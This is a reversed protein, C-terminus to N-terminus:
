SRIPSYPQHPPTVPELTHLPDSGLSQKALDLHFLAGSTNGNQIENRAQNISENVEVKCQIGCTDVSENASHNRLLAGKVDRKQLASNTANLHKDIDKHEEGCVKNPNCPNPIASASQISPLLPLPSITYSMLM